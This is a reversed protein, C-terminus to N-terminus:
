LAERHFHFVTFFAPKFNLMWFILIMADPGMVEHCISPSVISVIVSKIKKTELIVASSSQLWLILICKSRSFCAIVFTEEAMWDHRVRQSSMSQLVGPKGKRWWRGTQEFEHGNLWHHCGVMEDEIMGKEEHGWDKAADSDKGNIQSKCWTAM